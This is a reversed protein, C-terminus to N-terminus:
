DQLVKILSEEIVRKLFSDQQPNSYCLCLFVKDALWKKALAQQLILERTLSLGMKCFLM